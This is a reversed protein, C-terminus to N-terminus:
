AKPNCHIPLGRHGDAFGLRALDVPEEPLLVKLIAKLALLYSASGSPPVQQFCAFVSEFGSSKGQQQLDV